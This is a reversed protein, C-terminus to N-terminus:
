RESPSVSVLALASTSVRLGKHSLPTYRRQLGSRGHEMESHSLFHVQRANDFVSCENDNLQFRCGSHGIQTPLSLLKHDVLYTSILANDKDVATHFPAYDIYRLLWPHRNGITSTTLERRRQATHTRCKRWDDAPIDDDFHPSCQLM